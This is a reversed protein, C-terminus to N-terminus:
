KMEEEFNILKWTSAIKELEEPTFDGDLTIEDEAWYYVYRGTLEGMLKNAQDKDM